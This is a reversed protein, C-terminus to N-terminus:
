SVAPPKLSKLTRAENLMRQEAAFTEPKLTRQFARYYRESFSDRNQHVITLGLESLALNARLCSTRLLKETFARESKEISTPARLQETVERLQQYILRAAGFDSGRSDRPSQEILAVAKAAETRWTAVDVHESPPATSTICSVIVREADAKADVDDLTIRRPYEALSLRACAQQCVLPDAVERASCGGLCAEVAQPGFLPEIIQSDSSMEYLPRAQASPHYLQLVTILHEVPRSKSVSFTVVAAIVCTAATKAVSLLGRRLTRAALPLRAVLSQRRCTLNPSMRLTAARLFRGSNGRARFAGDPDSIRGRESPPEGQFSRGRPSSKGPPQDPPRDM